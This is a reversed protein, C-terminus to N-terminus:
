GEWFNQAGRDCRVGGSGERPLTRAYHKWIKKGDLRSLSDGIVSVSQQHCYIYRSVKLRVAEMVWWEPRQLRARTESFPYKLIKKNKRDEPLSSLPQSEWETRGLTQAAVILWSSHGGRSPGTCSLHLVPSHPTVVAVGHVVGTAAAPTPAGAASSSQHDVDQASIVPRHWRSRSRFLPLVLGISVRSHHSPHFLSLPIFSTNPFKVDHGM